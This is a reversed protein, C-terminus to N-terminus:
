ERDGGQTTSQTPNVPLVLRSPHAADRLVTVVPAPDLVPTISPAGPRPVAVCSIVLRVRHGSRFTWALPALDFVLEVPEGPVLPEADEAFCRHYPLGGNDYPPNSLGRLSARIQGDDTCPIPTSTGDPAVDYLFALFDGDSATSAIWLHLLPHGIVETDATLALGTYSIGRQERNAPTVGYDVTYRDSGGNPKTVLTGRNAGSLHAEEGTPGFFLELPRTDPLPWSEAQRWARREDRCNYVYYLVPPEDMIGNPIGKLWYDFWRLGEVSIDFSNSPECQFDNSFVCHKGPVFATKSPNPLSNLKAVVGTKVRYDEGWNATQYFPIGSAAIQPFHSFTNVQLHVQVGPRGLLREMWPSASDRFPMVGPELNWRHADRAAALLAGDTDGDVGAATADQAPPQPAPWEPPEMPQTAAVGNIDYYESPASLPMICRLHPPASAAAQWQSHGTASCGWMGIKGDSWPQAALWETIDWADWFAEPQWMARRPTVAWGHSAYSGRMDAIAVVYGFKVLSLGAGPYTQATPGDEFQRRNYTMHMWVVPLPEDVVQGGLTPRIIDLALLTGDRATVYESSLRHGDFRVSSYGSYEGPRSVLAGSQRVQGM